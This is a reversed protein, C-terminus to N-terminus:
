RGLHVDVPQGPHLRAAVQPPFSAEVLFVLKARSEKSYIVPPTYEARPSVFSVKGPLPEKIGDVSVTLQDGPHLSSVSRQPAFFRVKVNGAPLLSVVPRGAAVWEGSRYLTDYVLADEPAPRSKQSLEWEARALVAELAKVNAAAASLQDGRAGLKATQMDAEIRAVLQLQQERASRARDLEQASVTGSRFLREQRGLEAEALGLASRAQRLQAELAALETPRVGKRADDLVSRAQALRRAAEDRSAREAVSELAFLPDGRRAMSGRSVQLTVTGPLPSAVYVFEGEVYGQLVGSEQKGCAALLLIPLTVAIGRLLRPSKHLATRSL